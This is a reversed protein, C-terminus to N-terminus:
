YLLYVAQFPYPSSISYVIASFSIVGEVLAHSSGETHNLIDVRRIFRMNYGTSVLRWTWKGPDLRMTDKGTPINSTWPRNQFSGSTSSRIPYCILPHLM